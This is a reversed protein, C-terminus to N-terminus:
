FNPQVNNEAAAMRAKLTLVYPDDSVKVFKEAERTEQHILPSAGHALAEKPIRFLRGTERSINTRHFRNACWRRFSIEGPSARHNSFTTSFRNNKIPPQERRKGYGSEHLVM